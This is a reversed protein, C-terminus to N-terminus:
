PCESPRGWRAVGPRSLGDPTSFWGGLYLASGSGDDFVALSGVLIVNVETGLASWASGNWGSLFGRSGVGAVVRNGAVYLAPGGGDDFATM